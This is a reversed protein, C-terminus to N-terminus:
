LSTMVFPCSLLFNTALVPLKGTRPHVISYINKVDESATSITQAMLLRRAYVM